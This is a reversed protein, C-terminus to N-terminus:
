KEEKNLIPSQGPAALNLVTGSFILTVGNQEINLIEAGQIFDGITLVQDNIIAQPLKAGWIIGQVKLLSLDLGKEQAAQANEETVFKPKEKSILAQFPDRFEESKYEVAPRAIAMNEAVSPQASILKVSIVLCFIFLLFILNKLKRKRM